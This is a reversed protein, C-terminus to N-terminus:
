RKQLRSGAISSYVRCWARSGEGKGGGSGERYAALYGDYWGVMRMSAFLTTTVHCILFNKTIATFLFLARMRGLDSMACEGFGVGGVVLVCHDLLNM